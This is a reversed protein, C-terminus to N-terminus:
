VPQGALHRQRAFNLVTDLTETLEFQPQWNLLTRALTADGIARRIEVPRMRSQDQRVAIPMKAQSLLMDLISGIRVARGSAINIMSNNPLEDFLKISSVYASCIDRIDLFDREPDLAGVAIEPPMLGAEIRAIQDAFAPVVFDTTQGPGTHNFPRLRLLRLGEGTLAGLALEAAAKTAAYINMPALIAAENLAVGSKFGAGYCEASSIFIMRCRPAAALIAEAINLTGHLNVEWTGRPDARAAGVAAIGALHICLEPQLRSITAHVQARETIDLREDSESHQGTGIIRAAPFASILASKLHKGVFGGAGTVLISGYTM